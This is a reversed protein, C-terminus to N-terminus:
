YQAYDRKKFYAYKNVLLRFQGIAKSPDAENDAMLLRVDAVLSSEPFEKLFQKSAKALEEIKETEALSNIEKFSDQESLAAFSSNPIFLFFITTILFINKNYARWLSSVTRFVYPNHEGARVRALRVAAWGTRLRGKPCGHKARALSIIGEGAPVTPSPPQAVAGAPHPCPASVSYVSLTRLSYCIYKRLGPGM